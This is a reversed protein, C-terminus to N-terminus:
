IVVKWQSKRRGPINEEWMVANSVGEGGELEQELVVWVKGEGQEAKNKEM